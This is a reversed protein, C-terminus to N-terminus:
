FNILVFRIKIISDQSADYQLLMKWSSPTKYIVEDWIIKSADYQLLIKWSSSTKNIFSKMEFHESEESEVANQWKHLRTVM